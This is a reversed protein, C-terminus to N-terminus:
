AMLAKVRARGSPLAEPQPPDALTAEIVHRIAESTFDMPGSITVLGAAALVKRWATVDAASVALRKCLAVITQPPRRLALLRALRTPSEGCDHLKALLAIQRRHWESEPTSDVGNRALESTLPCAAPNWDPAGAALNEALQVCSGFLFDIEESADLEDGEDGAEDPSMLIQGTALGARLAAPGATLDRHSLLSAAARLARKPDDEHVRLAGAVILVGRGPRHFLGAEHEVATAQAVKLFTRWFMAGEKGASEPMGRFCLDLALVTVPRRELQLAADLSPGHAADEAIVNAEDRVEVRVGKFVAMTRNRVDLKRFLVSVHQKVTGPSIGLTRAIEKNSRGEWILSLIERQRPSLDDEMESSRGDPDSRSIRIRIPM